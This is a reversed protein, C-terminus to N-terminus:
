EKFYADYDEGNFILRKQPQFASNFISWEPQMENFSVAALDAISFLLNETSYSRNIDMVFHNNQKKDESLWVIFPVDYMNKSGKTEAHGAYDMTQYVEEGHDSLFVASANTNLSKLKSIIQSWVFDQYVVANDYANIEDFATSSKFATIPKSKFISFSDPYRNKYLFHTGMLHLVILKKTGKEKLVSDFYPLLDGDFPTKDNSINIFKTEDTSSAIGTIFNDWLGSPPQNSLWFTKFGAANFLQLITGKFKNEENQSNGLTLVKELASLTHTHPTVVNNFAYIENSIAKLKPTTNRSYDYIGLHNRSTSEGIVLVCIENDNLHKVDSFANSTKEFKVADYAIKDKKYDLFGATANYYFNSKSLPSFFHFGLLIVVMLLSFKNKFYFDITKSKMIFHLAFGFILFLLFWTFILWFDIFHTFFSGMENLNSQFLIFFSSSNIYSKFLYLYSFEILIAIIYLTFVFAKIWKKTKFVSFLLYVIIAYLINEVVDTKFIVAKLFWTVSHTILLPFLLFFAIKLHPFFNNKTWNM